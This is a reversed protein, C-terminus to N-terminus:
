RANLKGRIVTISAKPLEYSTQADANITSTAPPGDPDAHSSPGDSMWVYQKSGFTVM